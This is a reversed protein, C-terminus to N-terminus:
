EIPLFEFDDEYIDYIINKYNIDNSIFEECLQKDEDSSKNCVPLDQKIKDKLIMIDGRKDINIFTDINFKNKVMKVQSHMHANKNKIKPLLKIYMKFLEILNNEELLVKYNNLDFDSEKLLIPILWGNKEGECLIQEQSKKFVGKRKPFRIMWNLFCSITRTYPNRFLMIKEHKESDSPNLECINLKNLSSYM